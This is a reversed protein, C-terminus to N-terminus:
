KCWKTMTMKKKITTIGKTCNCTSRPLAMAEEDKDHIKKEGKDKKLPGTGTKLLECRVSSEETELKIRKILCM